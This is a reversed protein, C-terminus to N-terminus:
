YSQRYPLIRYVSNRQGSRNNQMFKFTHHEPMTIDFSPVIIYIKYQKITYLRSKKHFHCSVTFNIEITM